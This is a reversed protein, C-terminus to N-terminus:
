TAKSTKTDTDTQSVIASHRKRAALMAEAQQLQDLWSSDMPLTEVMPLNQSSDPVIGLVNWEFLVWYLVCLVALGPLLWTRWPMPAAPAATRRVPRRGAPNGDLDKLMDNILSMAASGGYQCCDPPRQLAVFLRNAQRGMPKRAYGAGGQWNALCQNSSSRSWLCMSSVQAGSYQDHAPYWRIRAVAVLLCRQLVSRWARVGIGAISSQYLNK